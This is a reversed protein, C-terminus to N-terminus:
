RLLLLSLGRSIRLWRLLLRELCRSDGSVLVLYLANLLVGPPLLRWAVFTLLLRVLLFALLSVFLLCRCLLLFFLPLPRGCRREPISQWSIFQECIRVLTLVFPDCVVFYAPVVGNVNAFHEDISVHNQLFKAPAMEACHPQSPVRCM